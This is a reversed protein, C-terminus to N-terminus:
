VCTFYYLRLYIVTAVRGINKNGMKIEKKDNEGCRYQCTDESSNGNKNQLNCWNMYIYGIVM